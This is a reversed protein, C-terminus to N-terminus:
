TAIISPAPTAVRRNAAYVPAQRLRSYALSRNAPIGGGLEIMEVAARSRLAGEGSVDLIERAARGGATGSSYGALYDRARQHTVAADADLALQRLLQVVGSIRRRDEHSAGALLTEIAHQVDHAGLASSQAVDSLPAAWRDPVASLNRVRHERLIYALTAGLAPGDVRRNAITLEAALARLAINGVGYALGIALV